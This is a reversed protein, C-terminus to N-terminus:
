DRIPMPDQDPVFKEGAWHGWTKMGEGIRLVRHPDKDHPKYTYNVEQDSTTQPNPQPGVFALLDSQGM